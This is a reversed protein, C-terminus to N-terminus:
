VKPLSCPGTNLFLFIPCTITGFLTMCFSDKRKFKAMQPFYSKYRNRWNDGVRPNRDIVLTLIDLMGLRAAINLGSHGAGIVIVTPEGNEMTEIEKRKDLWNKTEGNEVGRPRRNMVREEHGKLEQLCTYITFAKWHTGSTDAPTLNVIGRGRGLNTEFRFFAFICEGVAPSPCAEIVPEESEM